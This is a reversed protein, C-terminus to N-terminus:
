LYNNSHMALILVVTPNKAAQEVTFDRNNYMENILVLYAITIDEHTDIAAADLGTYGQIFANAASMCLNIRDNEDPTSAGCYDSAFATTVESVKM